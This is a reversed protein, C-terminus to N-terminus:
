NANFVSDVIYVVGNSGEVSGKIIKATVGEGDSVIIDDGSKTAILTIGALTKLKAKGSKNITQLLTARDLKGTVIHSKLLEELKAINEPNSLFTKKETTLSALAATTPGFVTFPGEEKSLQNALDATVLYSAFKKLQPENMIRAMASTLMAIDESTLDKKPARKVPPKQITDIVASDAEIKKAEQTENKCSFTLLTFMSLFLFIFLKQM